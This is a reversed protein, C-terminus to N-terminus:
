LKYNTKKEAYGKSVLFDIIVNKGISQAQMGNFRDSHILTGDGTYAANMIGNNDRKIDPSSIVEQIPLDYQQAFDFDRECHAPVGMVIGTGYDAIVFSSLYIPVADNNIPNIAYSGTFVGTKEKDTMRELPSMTTVHTQYAEVAARCEPTTISNVLDHEPAM